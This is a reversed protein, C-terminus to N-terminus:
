RPREATQVWWLVLLAVLVAALRHQSWMVLLTPLVLEPAHREM